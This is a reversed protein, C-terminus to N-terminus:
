QSVLAQIQDLSAFLQDFSDVVFYATQLQEYNNPTNIIRQVDFPLVQGTGNYINNVEKSSTLIAAGYAKLQQGQRVLGTELTFWYLRAIKEMGQANRLNQTAIRGLGEIFAAFAPNTLMPAHGLIDHFTDPLESFELEHEQRLDKAIPFVKKSAMAFFAENPVLGSVPQLTWGCLAQLRQSVQSIVPVQAPVLGLAQLANIYTQHAHEQILQHQRNYLRQWIQLKSLPATPAATTYPMNSM